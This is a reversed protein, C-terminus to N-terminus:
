SLSISFIKAAVALPRTIGEERSDPEFGFVYRRPAPFCLLPPPHFAVYAVAHNDGGIYDNLQEGCVGRATTVLWTKTGGASAGTRLRLPSTLPRFFFIQGLSACLPEAAVICSKACFKKQLAYAFGQSRRGEYQWRV